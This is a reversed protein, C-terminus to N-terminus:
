SGKRTCAVTEVRFAVRFATFFHNSIGRSLWRGRYRKSYGHSQIKIIEGALGNGRLFPKALTNSDHKANLGVIIRSYALEHLDKIVDGKVLRHKGHLCPIVDSRTVSGIGHM